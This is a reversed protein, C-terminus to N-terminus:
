SSNFDAAHRHEDTQRSRRSEQAEELTQTMDDLANEILSKLEILFKNHADYIRGFEDDKIKELHAAEIIERAM